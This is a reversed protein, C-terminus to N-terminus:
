KEKSRLTYKRQTDSSRQSYQQEKGGPLAEEEEEEPKPDDFGVIQVLIIAGIIAIACGIAEGLFSTPNDPNIANVTTLLGPLGAYAYYYSNFFSAVIAGM